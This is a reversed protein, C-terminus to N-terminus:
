ELKHLKETAKLQAIYNEYNKKKFFNNKHANIKKKFMSFLAINVSVTQYNKIGLIQTKRKAQQEASNIENNWKERVFGSEKHTQCQILISFCM